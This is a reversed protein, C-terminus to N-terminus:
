TDIYSGWAKNNLKATPPQLSESWPSSHPPLSQIFACIFLTSCYTSALLICESSVLPHATWLGAHSWFDYTSIHLPNWSFLLEKGRVTNRRIDNRGPFIPPIDDCNLLPHSHAPLPLLHPVSIDRKTSDISMCINFLTPRDYVLSIYCDTILISLCLIM